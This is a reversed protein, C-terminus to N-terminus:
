AVRMVSLCTIETLRWEERTLVIATSCQSSDDSSCPNDDLGWRWSHFLCYQWAPILRFRRLAAM